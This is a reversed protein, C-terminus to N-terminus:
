EREEVKILDTKYTSLEVEERSVILPDIRVQLKERVRNAADAAIENDSLESNEDRVIEVPIPKNFRVKDEHPLVIKIRPEAGEVESIVDRIGAPYVNQAKYILM